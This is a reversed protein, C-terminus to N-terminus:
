VMLDNEQKMDIASQLLKKLVAAFVAVVLPSCAFAFAFLIVGPADDIEAFHYAAPMFTMFAVTMAIACYIIHQLAGVSEGSFAKNQDIYGLLKLAQYLALFFPVSAAYLSAMVLYGSKPATPFEATWGKGLGPFAFICLALVGIGVIFIVARLFHTSGHKM